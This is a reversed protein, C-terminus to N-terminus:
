PLTFSGSAPHTMGPFPNGPAGQTGDDVMIEFPVSRDKGPKFKDIVAVIDLTGSTKGNNSALDATFASVKKDTKPIRVAVLNSFRAGAPCDFDVQIPLTLKNKELKAPGTRVNSIAIKEGKKDLTVFYGADTAAKGNKVLVRCEGLPAADTFTMEFSATGDGLSVKNGPLPNTACSLQIVSTQSIAPNTINFKVETGIRAIRPSVDAYICAASALAM